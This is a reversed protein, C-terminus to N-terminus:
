ISITNINFLMPEVSLVYTYKKLAEIIPQLNAFKNDITQKDFMKVSVSEGNTINKNRILHNDNVRVFIETKDDNIFIAELVKEYYSNLYIEVFDDDGNNDIESFVNKTKELEFQRQEVIKGGCKKCFTADADNEHKPDRKCATISTSPNNVTVKLGVALQQYIALSM